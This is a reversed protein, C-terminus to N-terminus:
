QLAAITGRVTVPAVDPASTAGTIQNTGDVTARRTGYNGVGYQNGSGTNRMLTAPADAFVAGFRGNNSFVNGVVTTAMSGESMALGDGLELRATETVLTGARTATVGNCLFIGVTSNGAVGVGLATNDDISSYQLVEARAGDQLFVGAAANSGVLAANLALTAPAGPLAAVLIGTRGNGALLSGHGQNVDGTLDMDATASSGPGVYLGDGGPLGPVVTTGSLSVRTLQVRAVSGSPAQELRLAVVGNADLVSRAITHMTGAVGGYVAAGGRANSSLRSAGLDVVADQAVLGVGGSRAVDLSRFLGTAGSLLAVGAFATDTVTADQVDLSAGAEGRLGQYGGVIVVDRVVLRAATHVVIAAGRTGPMTSSREIRLATFRLEGSTATIAFVDGDMSGVVTTGSSSGAGVISVASPLTVAMPGVVHTGRALAITAAAPQAALAEAITGFPRAMSGDGTASGPSVYVVPSAAASLDGYVGAAPTGLAGVRTCTFGGAGDRVPAESGRACQAAAHLPPGGGADRSAPGTCAGLALAPALWRPFVRAFARCPHTFPIFTM